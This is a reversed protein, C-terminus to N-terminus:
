QLSTVKAEATRDFFVFQKHMFLLTVGTYAHDPAHWPGQTHSIIHTLTTVGMYMTPTAAGTERGTLGDDLTTAGELGQHRDGYLLQAM